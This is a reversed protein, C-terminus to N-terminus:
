SSSAACTPAARPTIVYLLQADPASAKIASLINPHRLTALLRVERNFRIRFSRDQALDVAMVKVVVQRNHLKTETALYIQSMETQSLPTPALRFDPLQRALEDWTPFRSDDADIM